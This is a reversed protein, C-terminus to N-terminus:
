RREEESETQSIPEADDEPMETAETATAGPAAPMQGPEPIEKTEEVYFYADFYAQENDEPAPAMKAFKVLDALSFLERLKDRLREDNVNRMADLIQDSTMEMAGIGYRRGIYVRVIDALQSYYEKHKGNQWLKRSHLKELARIAAVHPPLLRKPTGRGKRRRLYKVFLYIVVALAVAIGIGWYVYEKIEAFILPTNLPRKIDFIQQKATDIEFTGVTLRMTEPALVTDGKGAKAENVSASWVVPFGGLTHTGEDFSTLRYTIRVRLRRGNRSITDVRDIGLVEIQPTLQNKEFQPLQIEQAVDKDIDLHLYFQDGILITDQSFRAHIEPARGQGRAAQALTLGFCSAGACLLLYFIRYRRM